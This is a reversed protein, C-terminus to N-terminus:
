HECLSRMEAQLNVAPVQQAGAQDLHQEWGARLTVDLPVSLLRWQALMICYSCHITYM